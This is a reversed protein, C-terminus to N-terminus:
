CVHLVTSRRASLCSGGTRSIAEQNKSTRLVLKMVHEKESLSRLVLWEPLHPKIIKLLSEVAGQAFKRPQMSVVEDLNKVNQVVKVIGAFLPEYAMYGTGDARKVLKYPQADSVDAAAVGQMSNALRDLPIKTFDLNESPATKKRAHASQRSSFTAAREAAAQSSWAALGIESIQRVPDSQLPRASLSDEFWPHDGVPMQDLSRALVALSEEELEVAACPEFPLLTQQSDDSWSLLSHSLDSHAAWDSECVRSMRQFPGDEPPTLDPGDAACCSEEFFPIETAAADPDFGHAIAPAFSTDDLLTM